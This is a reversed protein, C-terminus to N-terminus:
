NKDSGGLEEVEWEGFDLLEDLDMGKLSDEDCDSSHYSILSERIDDKSTFITREDGGFYRCDFQLDKLRYKM